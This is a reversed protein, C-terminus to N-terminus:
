NLEAERRQTEDRAARITPYEGTLLTDIACWVRQNMYLNGTRINTPPRMAPGLAYVFHDQIVPPWNPNIQTLDDTVQYSAVRHVSQLCGHYRFAIYNPPQVPWNNGVPHFYCHDKEVVDIWTHPNGAVMPRLGLAVVFVGNDTRREMSAYDGLHRVLQSLWLREEFNRVKRYARGALSQLEGWSMHATPVGGLDRPLKRKAYAADAASITVLRKKEASGALLRPQYRWLQRIDPLGWWRKAEFIAHFRHGCQIEIDTIGGIGAQKQLGIAADTSDIEEGFIAEVVMQRFTLSRELVWGVAFSGSNEDSGYLRFICSPETGHLTLM